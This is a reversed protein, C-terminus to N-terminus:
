PQRSPRRLDKEGTTSITLVLIDSRPCCNSVQVKWLDMRVAAVHDFEPEMAKKIAKKLGDVSGSKPIKVPFVSDGKFVSCNLDFEPEPSPMKVVIHLHSEEPADAFVKSLKAM